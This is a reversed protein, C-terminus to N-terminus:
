GSPLSIPQSRLDRLTVLGIDIAQRIPRAGHKRKTGFWDRNREFLNNAFTKSGLVVGDSFYRVRCRLLQSKSLQGDQELVANVENRSFGRRHAKCSAIGMPHEEGQLYLWKRYRCQVRQWSSERGIEPWVARIAERAFTSGGLAAGYGCHRYAAPDDVLGARLPNLDIYAAITSLAHESGEVLLSKFREDWLPGRRENRTNYWRSFVQKLTKFYPSIDYMRYTYSAKLQEAAAHKGAQRYEKLALAVQSVRNASYIARLRELLQKDSVSQRRPVQLLIHFHNSMVCYTLIRLGSFEALKRMLNIFYEKERDGMIFRQEIVRSMCHYYADEEVKLRSKRM